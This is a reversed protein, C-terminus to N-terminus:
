ESEGNEPEDIWASLEAQVYAHYQKPEGILEWIRELNEWRRSRLM